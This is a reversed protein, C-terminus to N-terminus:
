LSSKSWPTVQKRHPTTNITGFPGAQFAFKGLPKPLSPNYTDGKTAPSRLLLAPLQHSAPFPLVSQSSRSPPCNMDWNVPPPSPWWCRPATPSSVRSSAPSPTWCPPPRESIGYDQSMEKAIPNAIVIAVTNNATAIDMTGVLLGMGLQGGKKGHFVRRIGNLLADFGGHARILACLASVLIAVMATEYMGAAGSGMNALLETPATAGTALMIVAGSGIGLLLVLFVNAGLIGGVLVLLYPVMQILSYPALVLPGTSQGFSLVLILLLSVLAAPLAIAFNVRFKDRMPCGQGNCAAITTDSIFSLNDGFMAGGMVSAVCLPISFGSAEAVSLAIPTILTITGVSTGMALAVFCSVVFLVAVAFQAPVLSLLFYAVSDASSRGVVGVFIGATLFILIMIIINKDGVGKGMLLLKDDLSLARNQLCAVLLAALFAVVIPINYFGMPIQLGYEFLIGLGLYLILFVGIPLLAKVNGRKM